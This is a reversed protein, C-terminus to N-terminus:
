GILALVVALAKGTQTSSDESSKIVFVTGSSINLDSILSNNIHYPIEM